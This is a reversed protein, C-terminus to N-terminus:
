LSHIREWGFSTLGGVFHNNPIVTLSPPPMVDGRYTTLIVYAHDLCNNRYVNYGWGKAANGQQVAGGVASTATNLCRYRTYGISSRAFASTTTSFDGSGIWAGNYAGAPVYPDGAANDDTSGFYWHGTTGEEFAWGVHGFGAAADPANFMCVRGPGLAYATGGSLATMGAAAALACVAVVLRKSWSNM